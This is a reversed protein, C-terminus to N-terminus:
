NLAEVMEPFRRRIEGAFLGEYLYVFLAQDFTIPHEDDALVVAERAQEHARIVAEDDDYKSMGRMAAIFKDANELGQLFVPDKDRHLTASRAMVQPADGELLGVYVAPLDKLEDNSAGAQIAYAHAAFYIFGLVFPDGWFAAPLKPGLMDILSQITDRADQIPDSRTTVDESM